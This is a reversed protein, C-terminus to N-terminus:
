NASGYNFFTLSRENINVIDSEERGKGFLIDMNMLSKSHSNYVLCLFPDSVDKTLRLSIIQISM